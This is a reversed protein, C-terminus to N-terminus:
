VKEAAPNDIEDLTIGHHLQWMSMRDRIYQAREEFVRTDPVPILPTDRLRSGDAAMMEISCMGIPWNRMMYNPLSWAVPESAVLQAEREHRMAAEHKAENARDFRMVTGTVQDRLLYGSHTLGSENYGKYLPTMHKSVVFREDPPFARLEM